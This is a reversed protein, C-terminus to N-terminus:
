PTLVSTVTIVVTQGNIAITYTVPSSERVAQRFGPENQLRWLAHEAGADTSYHDVTQERAAKTARQSTSAYFIFGTVLLTALTLALLAMVLAQGSEGLRKDNMSM